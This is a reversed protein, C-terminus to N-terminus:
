QGLSINPSGPNGLLVLGKRDTPPRLRVPEEVLESLTSLRVDEPLSSLREELFRVTMPYPHAIVVAHGRRRAIALGQEFAAEIHAPSRVHDLFVDRRITPVAHARATREAVSHPTTRSDLFYLGRQAIGAMLWEMPLRHATLLSGTHNNVGTVNPLQALADAFQADFREASMALELTGPEQRRPAVAEMPQHLIIERGHVAAREAIQQAFPAYPLMGLTLEVPLAMIEEAQHLNYGVDDIVIALKPAQAEVAAGDADARAQM